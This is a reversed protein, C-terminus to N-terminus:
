DITLEVAKKSDMYYYEWEYDGNYVCFVVGDAFEPAYLGDVDDEVEQASKEKTGAYYLTDDEVFFVKDMANNYALYYGYDYTLDNSIKVLKDESKVYYLEDDNAIYVKSLDASAVFQEVYKEDCVVVAEMKENLKKVKYLDGSKVYLISKGDESLQYANDSSCIKVANDGKENLWVLNDYCALVTGKFTDVGVINAYNGTYSVVGHPLVVNYVTDSTVKVAESMKVTHYYTKSDKVYIIETADKNVLYNYVDTAIKESDKGNYLYLKSDNNVYYVYKGNDSVSLAKCGDDNIEVSDRGVGGVYLTNESYDEYDGVYCLVKGSPSMCLNYLYVDKDIQSVSGNKVCYVYLDGVSDEADQFYAVYEGTYSIYANDVDEAILKAELDADIYYLNKEDYSDYALFVARDGAANTLYDDLYEEECEYLKDTDPFVFFANENYNYNLMNKAYMDNDSGGGLALVAVLIIVLLAFVGAVPILLKTNFAAGKDKKNDAVPPVATQQVPATVPAQAEVPQAQAEVPTQAAPNPMEERKAGCGPCFTANDPIPQGCQNCFM